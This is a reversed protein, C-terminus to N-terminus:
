KLLGLNELKKAVYGLGLEKLKEKTPIGTEKDWGRLEYYINLMKNLTGKSIAEGQYPGEPLPELLRAPLVDDKRTIGERVNFARCLNFAREGVIM